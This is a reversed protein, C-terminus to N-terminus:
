CPSGITGTKANGNIRAAFRITEVLMRLGTSRRLMARHSRLWLRMRLFAQRVVQGDPEQHLEEKSCLLSSTRLVITCRRLWLSIWRRLRLEIGIFWRLLTSPLL